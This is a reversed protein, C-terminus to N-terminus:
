ELLSKRLRFLDPLPRFNRNTDIHNYRAMDVELM